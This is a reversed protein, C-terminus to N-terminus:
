SKFRKLDARMTKANATSSYRVDINAGNVVASWTVGVDASEAYDDVVSIDTGNTVIRLRGIRVKNSTAEKIKYTVELGEFSAHAFSLDSLVTNTQSASLAVAHKYEEEIFSSPSALAARQLNGLVVKSNLDLDGGLQPTTDEVVNALKLALADFVADHTPAKTVGDTIAGSQVAAALAASDFDTINSATHTHGVASKGALADFVSNGDPSHTTDGDVISSAILDTRAQTATYYKNTTGEAVDDTDLSVTGTQGNVSTVAGAATIQIWDANQTPDNTSLIYTLGNDTQVAVDGEQATLALRAAQNAVVYVSTIAVAPIQASPIKGGADLTAVGNNAGKESSQIATAVLGLNVNSDPMTITRTTATTIGSAEFAIKKTPDSNDSIRFITDLVDGAAIDSWAGGEYKRFKGDTTNYYMLGNEPSSPDSALAGIKIAGSFKQVNIM